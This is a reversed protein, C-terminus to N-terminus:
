NIGPSDPQALSIRVNGSVIWDRGDATVEDATITLATGRVPVALRFNQSRGGPEPSPSASAPVVTGNGDVLFIRLSRQEPAQGHALSGIGFATLLVLALTRM